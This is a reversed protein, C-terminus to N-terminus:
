TASQVHNGEASLWTANGTIEFNIIHEGYEISDCVYVRHGHHQLRLIERAQAKTPTNGQAKFEIFFCVGNPGLFLRDPVSRRAPSTFKYALFGKSKAYECVKQEIQKELM